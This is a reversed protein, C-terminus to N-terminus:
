MPPPPLSGITATFIVSLRFSFEFSIDLDSSTPTFPVPNLISDSYNNNTKTAIKPQYPPIQLGLPHSHNLHNIPILLESNFPIQVNMLVRGYLEELTRRAELGHRYAFNIDNLTDISTHM